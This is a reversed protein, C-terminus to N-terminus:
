DLPTIATVVNTANNYAIILDSVDVILDGNLDSNVYGTEQQDNYIMLVDEADIVKDQNVDGTFICYKTGVHKLNNGYAYASSDIMPITVAGMFSLVWTSWTEISNHHKVVIYVPRLFQNDHQPSFAILNIKDLTCKFSSILQSPVDRDRMELTVTDTRNMTNTQPDYLGELAAKLTFLKANCTEWPITEENFHFGINPTVNKNFSNSIETSTNNINAFIRTYPNEPGERWALEMQNGPDLDDNVIFSTATTTLRVSALKITGNLLYGSGPPVAVNPTLILQSGSITAGAPRVNVPLDSTLLEFTMTGGQGIVPNFDFAYQGQLYELNGTIYINWEIQTYVGCNMTFDKAELKNDARLNQSLCLVFILMTSFIINKM